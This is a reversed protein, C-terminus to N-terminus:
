AYKRSLDLAVERLVSTASDQLKGNKLSELTEKKSSPPRKTADAKSFIAM